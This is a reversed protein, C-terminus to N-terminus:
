APVGALVTLGREQDEGKKEERSRMFRIAGRRPAITQCSLTADNINSMLM